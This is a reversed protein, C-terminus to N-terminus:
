LTQFLFELKLLAFALTIEINLLHSHTVPPTQRKIIEIPASLFLGREPGLLPTTESIFGFRHLTFSAIQMVFLM